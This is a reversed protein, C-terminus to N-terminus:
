PRNRAVYDRARDVYADTRLGMTRAEALAADFTVGHDLVRWPIWVAGVRNSSACHLLMPRESGDLLARARDFVEDTLEDPGNWPFHVYAMGLEVTVPGPDFDELESAHRMNIVTRMGAEEMLALEAPGPKSGLWVDDIRHLKKMSGLTVPALQASDPLRHPGPASARCGLLGAALLAPLWPSPLKMTTPRLM